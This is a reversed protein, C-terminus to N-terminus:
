INYWAPMSIKTMKSYATTTIGSFSVELQLSITKSALMKTAGLEDILLQLDVPNMSFVGKSDVTTFSNVPLTISEAEELVGTGKEVKTATSVLLSFSITTGSDLKNINAVKGNLGLAFEYNTKNLSFFTKSITTAPLTATKLTSHRGAVTIDKEVTVGDKYASHVRFFYQVGPKLNDIKVVVTGKKVDQVLEGSAIIKTSAKSWDPTSATKEVYEITYTKTTKGDVFPVAKDKDTITLNASTLTLNSARATIAPFAATTASVKLTAKTNSTGAGGCSTITIEYRTKVDLGEVLVSHVNENVTITNGIQEKTKSNKVIIEFGTIESTNLTKTAVPSNWFIELTTPTATYAPRASKPPALNVETTALPVFVTASQNQESGISQSSESINNSLGSIDFSESVNSLGSIDSTNVYVSEAPEFSPQLVDASSISLLERFELSEFRLSRNAKKEPKQSLISRFM